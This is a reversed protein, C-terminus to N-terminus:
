EETTFNNGNTPKLGLHRRGEAVNRNGKGKAESCDHSLHFCCKGDSLEQM